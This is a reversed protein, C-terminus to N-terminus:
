KLKEAIQYLVGGAIDPNPFQYKRATIQIETTHAKMEVRATVKAGQIVAQIAGKAKDANILKGMSQMVMLSAAYAREGDMTFTQRVSDNGFYTAAIGVPLVAVGALMAVGYIELGKIGAAKVPEAIILLALQQASTINKYSQHINVAHVRVVPEKSESYDKYVIRGIGLTLLDIRLATAQSPSTSQSTKLSNINLLGKQNKTIGIENLEIKVFVFHLIQKLLAPRDYIVNIKSCDMLLGPPFRKPNYVKLGSIQISPDFVGFAFRDIHAPAGLMRSIIMTVIPKMIQNKFIVIGTFVLATMILITRINKM